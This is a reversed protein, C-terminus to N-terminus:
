NYTLTNTEQTWHFWHDNVQYSFRCFHIRKYNQLSSTWPWPAPLSSEAALASKSKYITTKESNRRQMSALMSKRMLDHIRNVLAGGEHDLRRGFARVELYWRMLSEIEVCSNQPSVCETRPCAPQECYKEFVDEQYAWSVSGPHCCISHTPPRGAVAPRSIQSTSLRLVRNWM